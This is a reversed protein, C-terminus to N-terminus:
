RRPRESCHARSGTSVRPLHDAEPAVHTSLERRREPQLDGRHAPGAPCRNRVEIRRRLLTWQRFDLGPSPARPPRTRQHAGNLSPLMLPGGAATAEDTPGTLKVYSGNESTAGRRGGAPAAPVPPRGRQRRLCLHSSLPQGGARRPPMDQGVLAVRPRRRLFPLGAMSWIPMSTWLLSLWIQIRASPPSNISCRMRVSGSRKAATRPGRGRARIRISADVSLSHTARQRSCSPWSTMTASGLKTGM